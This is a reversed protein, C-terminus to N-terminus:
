LEVGLVALIDVVPVKDADMRQVQALLKKAIYRSRKVLREGSQWFEYHYWYQKYEKGRRKIPKYHISGSGDGRSRVNKSPSLSKDQHRRERALAGFPSQASLSQKGQAKRRRPTAGSSPSIDAKAAEQEASRDSEANFTDSSKSPNLLFM